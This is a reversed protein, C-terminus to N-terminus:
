SPLKIIIIYKVQLPTIQVTSSSAATQEQAATTPKAVAGAHCEPLLRLPRHEQSKTITTSAM